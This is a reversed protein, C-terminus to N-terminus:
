TNRCHTGFLLFTEENISSRSKAPGGEGEGIFDQGEIKRESIRLKPVYVVVIRPEDTHEWLNKDSDVLPVLM